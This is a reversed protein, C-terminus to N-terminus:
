RLFGSIYLISRLDVYKIATTSVHRPHPSARGERPGIEKRKMCIKVFFQGIVREHAGRENPSGGFFGPDAM